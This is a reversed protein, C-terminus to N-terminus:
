VFTYHYTIEGLCRIHITRGRPITVTKTGSVFNGTTDSGTILSVTPFVVTVTYTSNRNTISTWMGSEPGNMALMGGLTTPNSVDVVPLTAARLGASPPAVTFTVNGSPLFGDQQAELSCQWHTDNMTVTGTTVTLMPRFTGSGRVWKPINDRVVEWDAPPDVVVTGGGGGTGINGTVPFM